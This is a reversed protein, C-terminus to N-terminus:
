ACEYDIFNVLRNCATCKLQANFWGYSNNRQKMTLELLTEPDTDYVVSIAAQFLECGCQCQYINNAKRQSASTLSHEGIMADYGHLVPDFLLINRGCDQCSLEARQFEQETDCLSGSANTKGSTRIGFIGSGCKCCITAQWRLPDPKLQFEERSEPSLKKVFQRVQSPGTIKLGKFFIWKLRDLLEWLPTPDPYRFRSFFDRDVEAYQLLHFGSNPLRIILQKGSFYFTKQYVGYIREEFRAVEPLIIGEPFVEYDGNNGTARETFYRIILDKPKEKTKRQKFNLEVVDPM